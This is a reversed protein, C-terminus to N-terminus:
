IGAKKHIAEIKLQAEAVEPRNPFFTIFDRYEVEAQRLAGQAYCADAVSLKARPVYDSDPHSNILTELLTRAAAYESQQRAKMADDFLVNDSQKVGVGETIRLTLDIRKPASDIKTDPMATADAYGQNVYIQRLRDLGARIETMNFVDGDRLHFQERLTATSISLTRDPTVNQITIRGLRFQDGEAVSAIILINEKGGNLRLPRSSPAHVVVQFYGREQFDTRIREGAEDSLEQSNDYERSKWAKLVRERVGDRDHVEGEIRLDEVVFQTTPHAASGSESQVMAKGASSNPQAHDLTGAAVGTSLLACAVCACRMRARSIRPVPGGELIQRIRRELSSGPMAMGAISLRAGSSKVSRAMDILYESYARRDYGRALVVNDCAEEALASLHRELWWAAPHFWFVARNFLALWQVFPHRCRAHEAEHTLVAEFQAQPWQRWHEPFILTPRFFGVTVPAACLLSTLVGDHLAADRVLRHARITGLGLRFLLLCLGLLYVGLLVALKPDVPTSRVSRSSFIEIPATAKDAISQTVPPLVRLSVKPGWAAWIPLLLMMAVVGAWVSHKATAAKVRMASLVVAAAAVLLAARVACELFLREM